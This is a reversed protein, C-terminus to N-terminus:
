QPRQGPRGMPVSLVVEKDDGSDVSDTGGADNGEAVGAGSASEDRVGMGVGESDEPKVLLGKADVGWHGAVGDVEGDLGATREGGWPRSAGSM